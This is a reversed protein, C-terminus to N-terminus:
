YNVAYYQLGPFVRVNQCFLLISPISFGTSGLAPRSPALRGLTAPHCKHPHTARLPTFVRM